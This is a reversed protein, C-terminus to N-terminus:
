VIEFVDKFSKRANGNIGKEHQYVKQRLNELNKAKIAKKGSKKTPDAVYVHYFGDSSPKEPFTYASLLQERLIYSIYYLLEFKVTMDRGYPILM